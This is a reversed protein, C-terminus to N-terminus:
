VYDGVVSLPPLSRLILYVRGEKMLAEPSQECSGNNVRVPIELRPPKPELVPLTMHSTHHVSLRQPLNGGLVEIERTV